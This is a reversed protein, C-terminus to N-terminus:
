KFREAIKLCARCNVAGWRLQKAREEDTVNKYLVYKWHANEVGQTCLSDGTTRNLKGTNLDELLFIHHVSNRKGGNALGRDNMTSLNLKIDPQWRAPVNLGNNFIQNAEERQKQAIAEAARRAEAAQQRETEERQKDELSVCYFQRAVAVEVATGDKYRDGTFEFSMDGIQIKGDQVEGNLPLRRFVAPDIFGIQKLEKYEIM